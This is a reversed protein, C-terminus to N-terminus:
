TRGRMPTPGLKAQKDPKCTICACCTECYTCTACSRDDPVYHGYQSKYCMM